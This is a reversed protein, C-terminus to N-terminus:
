YCSPTWSANHCHRCGKRASDIVKAVLFCTTSGFYQGHDSVPSKMRSLLLNTGSEADLGTVEQDVFESLYRPKSHSSTILISGHGCDPMIQKIDVQEPDDFADIILLWPDSNKELWRVVSRGPNAGAVSTQPTLRPTKGNTNSAITEAAESLSAVITGQSSANIWLTARYESKFMRQYRHAIATKGSGSIGRLFVRKTCQYRSGLTLHLEEVIEVRGFFNRTSPPIHSLNVSM